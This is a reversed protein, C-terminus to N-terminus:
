VDLEKSAPITIYEKVKGSKVLSKFDNDFKTLSVKILLFDVKTDTKSDLKVIYYADVGEIIGSIQGPELKRVMSIYSNSDLDDISASMGGGNERTVDDDSMERVVSAFDDGKDLRQKVTNIKDKASTDVAFSVKKELIRDALVARYEDITWGFYQKLVNSEYDHQSMTAGNKNAKLSDNLATDIEQGSVTINKGRALQRAYAIKEVNDLEKRKHHELESKGDDSALDVKSQNQMYFIDSRVYRLYDQYSVNEGNVNAVPVPLVKTMSYFFDSTAQNRYLMVFSWVSFLVLAVVSVIIANILIKHKSYQVPYKFKRGGALIQERHEAITENTIKTPPTKSGKKFSKPIKGALKDTLKHKADAM